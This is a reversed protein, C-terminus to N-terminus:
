KPILGVAKAVGTFVEPEFSPFIEIMAPVDPLQPSRKPTNVALPVLRGDRIFPM